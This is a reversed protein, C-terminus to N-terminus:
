SQDKFRVQNTQLQLLLLRTDDRAGLQDRRLLAPGCGIGALTGALADRRSM